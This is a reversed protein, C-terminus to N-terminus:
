ATGFVSALLKGAAKQARFKRPRPSGSHRLEILQQKTDSDYFHIWTEDM